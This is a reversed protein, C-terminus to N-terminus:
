ENQLAQEGIQAINAELSKIVEKFEQALEEVTETRKVKERNFRATLFDVEKQFYAEL